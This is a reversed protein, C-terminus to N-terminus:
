GASIFYIVAGLILVVIFIRRRKVRLNLKQKLHVLEEQTLLFGGARNDTSQMVWEKQCFSCKYTTGNFYDGLQLNVSPKIIGKNIREFFLNDYFEYDKRTVFQYIEKEFCHKCM